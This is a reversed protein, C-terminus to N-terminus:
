RAAPLPRANLQVEVDMTQTGRILKIAVKQGAHEEICKKFEDATTTPKGALQIVVDGRLINAKFAPSDTTIVEIHVGTNRQLAARMNDPIPGFLVGLIGPKSRQWFSAGHKYIRNEYPEYGSHILTAPIWTTSSGSYSGRSGGSTVTGSHTSRYKTGPQYTYTPTAGRETHSYEVSILVREAQVSKAHEVLQAETADGLFGAGGIQSFGEEILKRGAEKHKEFSAVIIQPEM